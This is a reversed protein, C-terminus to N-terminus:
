IITTAIYKYPIIWSQLRKDATQLNEYYPIEM